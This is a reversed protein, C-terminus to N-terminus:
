KARKVIVDHCKFWLATRLTLIFIRFLSHRMKPSTLGMTLYSLSIGKSRRSQKDWVILALVVALLFVGVNLWIPTTGAGVGVLTALTAFFRLLWLGGFLVGVFTLTAFILALNLRSKPEVKRALQQQNLRDRHRGYQDEPLENKVDYASDGRTSFLGM